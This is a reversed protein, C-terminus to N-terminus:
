LVILFEERKKLVVPNKEGIILETLMIPNTVTPARSEGVVNIHAQPHGDNKVCGSELFRGM